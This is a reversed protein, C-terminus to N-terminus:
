FPPDIWSHEKYAPLGITRAAFYLALTVAAFLAALPWTLRPRTVLGAALAVATIANLVFLIGIHFASEAHDPTAAAHVAAITVLLMVGVVTWRKRTAPRLDIRM